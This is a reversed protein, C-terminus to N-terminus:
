LVKKFGYDEEMINSPIARVLMAAERGSQGVLLGQAEYFPVVARVNKQEKCWKLFDDSNDLSASVRIHYSSIEMIADKFEMQFGNMVSIVVILAMVGFGVGLSALASTVATHGRSDVKNFRNSVYFIWNMSSFLTKKNM